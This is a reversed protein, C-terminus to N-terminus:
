TCPYRFSLYINVQISGSGYTSTMALSPPPHIQTTVQVGASSHRTQSLVNKNKDGTFHTEPSLSDQRTLIPNDNVNIVAGNVVWQIQPVPNANRAECRYVSEKDVPVSPEGSIQVIDPPVSILLFHAILDQPINETDKM